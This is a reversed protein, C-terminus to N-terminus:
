MDGLAYRKEVALLRHKALSIAHERRERYEFNRWNLDASKRLLLYEVLQLCDVCLRPLGSVEISWKMPPFHVFRNRLSNLGALSEKLTKPLAAWQMETLNSQEGLHVKKYLNFFSDLKEVPFNGGNKLAALWKEAVKDRLPLLGDTGRLAVVMSCQVSSHLALIIWRWYSVDGELKEAWEAFAELAATAEEHENTRFWIENM